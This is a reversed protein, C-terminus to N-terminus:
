HEGLDAFVQNIENDGAADCRFVLEFGLKAAMKRVREELKDVVYTFTLEAGQECYAKAIGYAISREFIM